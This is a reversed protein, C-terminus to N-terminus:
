ENQQTHYTLDKNMKTRHCLLCYLSFIVMIIFSVFQQNFKRQGGGRGPRGGGGRGPRGWNSPNNFEPRRGGQRNLPYMQVPQLPFAGVRNIQQQMLGSNAALIQSQENTPVFYDGLLGFQNVRNQSIPNNNLMQAFGSPRLVSQPPLLLLLALPLLQPMLNHLFQPLLQPLLM